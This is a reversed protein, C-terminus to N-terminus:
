GAEEIRTVEIAKAKADVELILWTGWESPSAKAGRAQTRLGSM